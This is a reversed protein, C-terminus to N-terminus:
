HINPFSSAPVLEGAHIRGYCGCAMTQPHGCSEYRGAVVWAQNEYDFGNVDQPADTATHDATAYRM